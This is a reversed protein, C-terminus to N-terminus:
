KLLRKYINNFKINGEEANKMIKNRHDIWKSSDFTINENKAQQYFDRDFVDAYLAFIFQWYQAEQTGGAGNYDRLMTYYHKVSNQNMNFNDPQKTKSLLIKIKVAGYLLQAKWRHPKKLQTSTYNHQNYISDNQWAKYKHYDSATTFNHSSAYGCKAMMNHLKPRAKWHFLKKDSVYLQHHVDKRAISTFMTLGIANTSSKRELNVDIPKKNQRTTGGFNCFQSEKYLLAAYIAPDIEFCKSLDYIEGAIQKVTLVNPSSSDSLSSFDGHYHDNCLHGDYSSLIIFDEIDQLTTNSNLVHDEDLKEVDPFVGPPMSSAPDRKTLPDQILWYFGIAIFLIAYKYFM